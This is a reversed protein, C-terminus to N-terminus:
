RMGNGTTFSWSFEEGTDEIVLQVSYRTKAKLTSKPILCYAHPARQESRARAVIELLQELSNVTLDRFRAWQEKWPGWSDEVEGRVYTSVLTALEDASVCREISTRTRFM